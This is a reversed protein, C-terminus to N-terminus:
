FAQGLSIYFQFIDDSDRGNIPFAVDLRLPGIGTFYRLGLGGAWLFREDFDPFPQESVTGGDIFPVLGIDETVRLRVEGSVELVSRGGTPDGKDDEPGISQFEYGRVSGGGGSYFRKNAPLEDTEQGIISGIRTRASLM